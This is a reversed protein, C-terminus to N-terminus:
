LANLFFPGRAQLPTMNQNSLKGKPFDRVNVL